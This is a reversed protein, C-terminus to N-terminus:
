RLSRGARMSEFVIATPITQRNPGVTAAPAPDSNMSQLDVYEVHATTGRTEADQALVRLIDMPVVIGALTGDDNVVVVRHINEDAMLRVATLVPDDARVAYIVRTMVDGVLGSGGSQRRRPDALDSNSLVGVLHGRADLVPAGTVGANHLVSWAKRVPMDTRLLLIAETMVDRVRLTQLMALKIM